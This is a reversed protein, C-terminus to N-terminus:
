VVKRALPGVQTVDVWPHLQLTCGVLRRGWVEARAEGLGMGQKLLGTSGWGRGRSCGWIHEMGWLAERHPLRCLFSM